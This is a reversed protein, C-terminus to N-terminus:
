PQELVAGNRAVVLLMSVDEGAISLPLPSVRAHVAYRLTGSRDVTATCSMASIAAFDDTNDAGCATLDPSPDSFVFAGKGNWCVEVRMGVTAGLGAGVVRGTVFHSCQANEQSVSISFNRAAGAAQTPTLMAAALWVAAVAPLAAWRLRYGGRSPASSPDGALDASVADAQTWALVLTPLMLILEVFALLARGPIGNDVQSRQGGSGGPFTLFIALLLLVVTALGLLRFGRRYAFNRQSLQREDLDRRRAFALGRTAEILLLDVAVLALVVIIGLGHLSRPVPSGLLMTIVAAAAVLGRRTRRRTLTTTIASM